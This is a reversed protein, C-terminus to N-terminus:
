FSEICMGLNFFARHFMMVDNADPESEKFATYTGPNKEKIVQLVRPLKCYSAEFTGFRMEMALQKVRWAKLYNIKYKFQREMAGIIYSCEFDRKEIIENFM